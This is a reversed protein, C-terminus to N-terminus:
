PLAMQDLEAVNWAHFLMRRSAPNHKLTEVLGAIQDHVRGDAGQWRRWQKGYIPGLDGWQAAFADDTLVRQEFADQSIDQGTARRYQALPWDTWIKV